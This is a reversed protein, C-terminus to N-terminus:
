LEELGRVEIENRAKEKFDRDETILICNYYRAALLHLSDKLHLGIKSSVAKAEEWEARTITIIKIKEVLLFEKLYEDRIKKKTTRLKGELETLTLDSIYIFYECEITKEFIRKVREFLPIFGRMEEQWYALFINSDLYLRKM